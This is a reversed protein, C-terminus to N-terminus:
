SISRSQSRPASSNNFALERFMQPSIRCIAFWQKMPVICGAVNRPRLVNKGDIPTLHCGGLRRLESM